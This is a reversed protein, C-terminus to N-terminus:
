VEPLQWPTQVEQSGQAAWWVAARRLQWPRQASQFGWRPPPLQLPALGCSDPPPPRRLAAVVQANHAPPHCHCGHSDWQVSSTPGMHM